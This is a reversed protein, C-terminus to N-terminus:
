PLSIPMGFLLLWLPLTGLLAITGVALITVTLERDLNYAEAIMLTAFAPPMAMELVLILGAPAPVGLRPAAYVLILGLLLPTILMKIALSASARRIHTWSQIQSLRIGILLLSLVIIGWALGKLGQEVPHPLPASHLLLGLGFSWVAPNVLIAQALKWPHQSGMGFRAALVVGLGYAGLASGITDYFVAWAFYKPGVLALTVPYGLYGTNGFMAGLLFSGQTPKNQCEAGLVKALRRVWGPCRPHRQWRNLYCQAWLWCWAIAGSLLIALWAMLPAVWLSTSLNAQRLFAFISVPVGVWFLGKGLYFPVSKPLRMGLWVGLGVWTILPVYLKLLSAGLTPM